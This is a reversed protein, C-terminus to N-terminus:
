QNFINTKIFIDDPLMTFVWYGKEFLETWLVDFGNPFLNVNYNYRHRNWNAM